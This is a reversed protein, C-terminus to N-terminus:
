MHVQVHLWFGLRLIKKVTLIGGSGLKDAGNEMNLERALSACWSRCRIQKYAVFRRQVVMKVKKPPRKWCVERRGLPYAQGTIKTLPSFAQRWAQRSGLFRVRCKQTSGVNKKLLATPVCNWASFANKRCVRLHTDKPRCFPCFFFVISLGKM